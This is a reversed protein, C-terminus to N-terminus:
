TELIHTADQIEPSIMKNVGYGDSRRNPDSEAVAPTLEESFDYVSGAEVAIVLIVEPLKAGM